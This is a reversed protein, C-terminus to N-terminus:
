RARPKEADIRMRAEVCIVPIIETEGDFKTLRELIRDRHGLFHGFKKLIDEFVENREDFDVEDADRIM